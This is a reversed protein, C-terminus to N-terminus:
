KKKKGQDPPPLRPQGDEEGRTLDRYHVRRNIEEDSFMMKFMWDAEKCSKSCYFFQKDDREGDLTLLKNCWACCRGHTM